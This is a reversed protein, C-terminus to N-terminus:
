RYPSGPANKQMKKDLLEVAQALRERADNIIKIVEEHPIVKDPPCPGIKLPAKDRPFKKRTLWSRTGYAANWFTELDDVIKEMDARLGDFNFSSIHSLSDKNDANEHLDRIARRFVDDNYLLGWFKDWKIMWETQENTNVHLGDKELDKVPRGDIEHIGVHEYVHNYFNFKIGRNGQKVEYILSVDRADPSYDPRQYFIQYDLRVRVGNPKNIEHRIIKSGDEGYSEFGVKRTEQSRPDLVEFDFAQEPEDAYKKIMERNLQTLLDLSRATVEGSIFSGEAEAKAEPKASASKPTSEFPNM